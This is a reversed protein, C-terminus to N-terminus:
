RLRYDCNIILGCDRHLDEKKTWVPTHSKKHTNLEYAKMKLRSRIGGLIHLMNDENIDNYTYSQRSMSTLIQRDSAPDRCLRRKQTHNM